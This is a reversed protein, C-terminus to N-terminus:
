QAAFSTVPKGNEDYLSWTDSFSRVLNVRIGKQPNMRDNQLFSSVLQERHGEPIYKLLEDLSIECESEM